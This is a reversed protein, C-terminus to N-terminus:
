GIMVNKGDLLAALKRTEAGPKAKNDNVIRELTISEFFASIHNSAEKWIDHVLCDDVRDCNIEPLEDNCSTCPTLDLGEEVAIFISKVTVAAPDEALM